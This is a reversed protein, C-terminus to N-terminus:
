PTLSELPLAITVALGSPLWEYDLTGQFQHTIANEALRSGFGESAPASEIRPGGREVWHLTLKDGKRRWTV